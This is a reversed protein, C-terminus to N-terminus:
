RAKSTAQAQLKLYTTSALFQLTNPELGFSQWKELSKSLVFELERGYLTRYMRALERVFWRYQNLLPVPLNAATLMPETMEALRAESARPTSSAIPLVKTSRRIRRLVEAMERNMTSKKM